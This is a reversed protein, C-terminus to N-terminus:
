KLVATAHAHVADAAERLAMALDPRQLLEALAALRTVTDFGDDEGGYYRRKCSCDARAEPTREPYFGCCCDCFCADADLKSASM